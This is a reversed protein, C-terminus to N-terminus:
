TRPGAELFHFKENAGEARKRMSESEGCTPAPWCTGAGIFDPTRAGKKVRGYLGNADRELRIHEQHNQNTM